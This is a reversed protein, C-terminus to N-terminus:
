VTSVDDLARLRLLFLVRVAVGGGDDILRFDYLFDLQLELVVLLEDLIRVWLHVQIM